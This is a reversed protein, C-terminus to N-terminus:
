KNYLWGTVDLQGQIILSIYMTIECLMLLMNLSLYYGVGYCHSPYAENIPHSIFVCTVEEILIGRCPIAYESFGVSTLDAHRPYSFIDVSGPSPLNTEGHRPLTRLVRFIRERSKEDRSM